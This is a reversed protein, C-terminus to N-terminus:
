NSWESQHRLNVFSWKEPGNKEGLKVNIEWSGFNQKIELYKQWTELSKLLNILVALGGIKYTM